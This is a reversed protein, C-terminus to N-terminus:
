IKAYNKTVRSCSKASVPLGAGPARACITTPMVCRRKSGPPLSNACVTIATDLKALEAAILARQKHLAEVAKQRDDDREIVGEAIRLHVFGGDLRFAISRILQLTVIDAPTM